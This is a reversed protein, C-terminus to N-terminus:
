LFLLFKRFTCYRFKRKGASYKILIFLYIVKPNHWVLTKYSHLTITFSELSIFFFVATACKTEQNVIVDLYM